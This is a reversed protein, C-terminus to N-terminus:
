GRRCCIAFSVQMYKNLLKKTYMLHSAYAETCPYIQVLFLLREAM